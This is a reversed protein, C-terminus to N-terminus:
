KEADIKFIEKQCAPRRKRYEFAPHVVLERDRCLNFPASSSWEGRGEFGGDM